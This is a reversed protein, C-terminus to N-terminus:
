YWWARTCARRARSRVESPSLSPTDDIHMKMRETILSMTSFVSSWNQDDLKGARLDTQSVRGVSSLMRMMLSEKPMELSFILVPKEADMAVNEAINMAFSTKGVSPRGAVIVMDGGQLGSTMKDLDKYHTAVGTIGGESKVLEDIRDVVSPM